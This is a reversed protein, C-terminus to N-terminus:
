PGLFTIEKPWENLNNNRIVPQKFYEHLKEVQYVLSENVKYSFM